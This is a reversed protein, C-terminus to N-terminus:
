PAPHKSCAQFVSRQSNASTFCKVHGKDVIQLAKGLDKDFLFHLRCKWDCGPKTVQKCAKHITV